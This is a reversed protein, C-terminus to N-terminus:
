ADDNGCLSLAVASEACVDAPVHVSALDRVVAIVATRRLATPGCAAESAFGSEISCGPSAVAVPSQRASGNCPAFGSVDLVRRSM